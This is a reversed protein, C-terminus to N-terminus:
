NRGHSATEKFDRLLKIGYESIRYEIPQGEYVLIFGKKELRRLYSGAVLWAAKGSCAGNGQNSVKTHMTSNPWMQMAFLPATLRREFTTDELIMLAKAENKNM